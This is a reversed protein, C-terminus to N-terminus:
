QAISRGEVYGVSGNPLRVQWWMNNAMRGEAQLKTDLTAKAIAASIHSPQALIVAGKKVTVTKNIQDFHVQPPAAAQQTQGAGLANLIAMPNGSQIANAVNGAAQMDAAPNPPAAGAGTDASALMQLGRTEDAGSTELQATQAQGQQAQATAPGTNVPEASAVTKAIYGDTDGVKVRWWKGDKTEGTATIEENTRLKSLVDASKSPAARVQAGSTSAYIKRDPMAIIGVQAAPAAQQPQVSQREGAAQEASAVKTGGNLEELKANALDVFYGNPYKALYIEVEEPDNSDKVSDWHAKENKMKAEEASTAPAPPPTVSATQTADPAKFYFRGTLSSSDWPTQQNGTSALVKTRVEQFVDAISLGPQTITEALAKTYPSNVGDGDAATSGPATSYAIFSGRPATEIKALGRSLARAGDGLPNNRCADLVIINVASNAFEMQKLVTSASVAVLDVDAERKIKADIPILYNEGGVQVGHGAYFFLGTGEKGAAMLKESFAAIAQKMQDQSADTASVVDFGVSKLAQIMLKADNAPNPLAPMDGKYASNGIVLAVRPEASASSALLGFLLAFGASVAGLAKVGRRFLFFHMM